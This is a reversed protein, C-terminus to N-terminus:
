PRYKTVTQRKIPRKIQTLYQALQFERHLLHYCDPKNISQIETKWQTRHRLKNDKDLQKVQSNPIVNM